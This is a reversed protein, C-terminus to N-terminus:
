ARAGPPPERVPRPPLSAESPVETRPRRTLWGIDLAILGLAIFALIWDLGLVSGRATAATLQSMAPPLARPSLRSEAESSLSTPLLTSGPRSGAWSVHLFGVQTPAPVVVLGSRAVVQERRGSPHEVTVATLEIPVRLRIPEGTRTPAALAGQRHARAQEVLNRVFLVFSARLPWNSAGVDFGVLTGKRGPSSVDAVIAGDKSRLLADGERELTLIRARAIEIGEFTLHRLRPDTEAWSTLVPREVEKGVTLTRCPGQPPNLLLLDAGPLREPCAGDVIVFADAPIRDPVLGSLETTYLELETDARLAREMWVNASKPALVVPLKRGFPVLVTSRDDSPLADPPSLELNLGAGADSPANEFGLVVPVREGPTLRLRRSALPEAVNRQSLTVFVDRPETAHHQVLAFVEVRDRGTVPDPGRTVDTRVIATNDLRSGVQIIETPVDPTVWDDADAIAGDTFLVIRGGGHERIQDAAMALAPGLHGEVERVSLRGLAAELRGRDSEFPSLLEPARGAALLMVETGPAFRKSVGRAAKVARSLRSEGAEVAGMSASVDVILVARPDSIRSSRTIPGALALALLVLALLELVLPVSPVLRKIPSKAQLDRNVAKWLWISSVVRRTRKVKLLYLAILPLALGM